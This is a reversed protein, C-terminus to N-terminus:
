NFIELHLIEDKSLSTEGPKLGAFAPECVLYPKGFYKFTYGPSKEPLEIACCVHTAKKCYLLVTEAYLYKNVLYCFLAAKDECDVFEDALTQEVCNRKEHSRYDRDAKYPFAGQVLTLLFSLKEAYTKGKLWVVLSDNM